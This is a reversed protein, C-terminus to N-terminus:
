IVENLNVIMNDIRISGICEFVRKVEILQNNEEKM